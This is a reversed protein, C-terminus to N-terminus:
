VNVPLSRGSSEIYGPKFRSSATAAADKPIEGARRAASKKSNRGPLKATGSVPEAHQYRDCDLPKIPTTM